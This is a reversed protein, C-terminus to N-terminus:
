RNTLVLANRFQRPIPYRYAFGRLLKICIIHKSNTDALSSSIKMRMNVFVQSMTVCAYDKLLLVRRSAVLDPVEEFPIPNLCSKSLCNVCVFMEFLCVSNLILISRHM